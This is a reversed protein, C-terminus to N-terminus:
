LLYPIKLTSSIEMPQSWPWLVKFQTKDREIEFYFEILFHVFIKFLGKQIDHQCFVFSRDLLNDKETHLFAWVCWFSLAMLVRCDIKLFRCFKKCPHFLMFQFSKAKYLFIIIRVLSCWLYRLSFGFVWGYSVTLHFIFIEYM